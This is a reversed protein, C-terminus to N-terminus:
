PQIIEESSAFSIWNQFRFRRSFMLRQPVEPIVAYSLMNPHRTYMANLSRILLEASLFSLHKLLCLAKGEDNDSNM